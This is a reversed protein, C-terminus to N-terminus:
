MQSQPIKKTETKKGNGNKNEGCNKPEPILKFAAQLMGLKKELKDIRNSMEQRDNSIKKLAEADLVAEKKRALYIIFVMCAAVGFSVGLLLLTQNDFIFPFDM